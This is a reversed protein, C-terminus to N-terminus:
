FLQYGWSFTMQYYYFAVYGVIMIAYLMEASKKTFCHKIMWPLSIYSYLSFYIPLRGIYVGSSFSSLLYLGAAIISFNVSMNIIPDDEDDIFRRVVLALIAPISYILTRIINTGDDNLWLDGTVVSDYQTNQLSTELLSTFNGVFAVALLVMMIFLLTRWNWAKGQVIFIIPLMILASAHITSVLLIIVILPIYKKKLILGFCAFLITVAIFQRMGNFMWSMYDSSAIFLFMSTAFSESYKRYVYFLCAGQIVAIIFLFLVDREGIISKLVIQFVAFGKDKEVTSVYQPIEFISGPLSLFGERYLGTDGVNGRMGAAFIIPLSALVAFVRECRVYRRGLIMENRVPELIFYGAAVIGTWILLFGYITM